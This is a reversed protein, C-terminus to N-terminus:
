FHHMNFRTIFACNYSFLQRRRSNKTPSRRFGFCWIPWLCRTNIDAPIFLNADVFHVVYRRDLFMTREAPADSSAVFSPSSDGHQSRWKLDSESASSTPNTCRVSDIQTPAAAVSQLDQDRERNWWTEDDQADAYEHWGVREFLRMMHEPLPAIM